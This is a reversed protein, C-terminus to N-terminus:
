ETITGRNLNKGIFKLAEDCIKDCDKVISCFGSTNLVQVCQDHTIPAKRVDVMGNAGNLLFLIALILQNIFAM